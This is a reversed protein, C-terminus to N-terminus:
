EAYDGNLLKQKFHDIIWLIDKHQLNLSARAEFEGAKNYGLVLVDNFTGVAKELVKDPNRASYGLDFVNDKQEPKELYEPAKNELVSVSLIMGNAMGRMYEDYNWNGETCQVKTLEKLKEIM